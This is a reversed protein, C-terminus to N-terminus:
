SALEAVIVLSQQLLFHHFFRGMGSPNHQFVFAAINFVKGICTTASPKMTTAAATTPPVECRRNFKGSGAGVLGAL